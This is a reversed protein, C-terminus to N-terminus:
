IGLFQELKELEREARDLSQAGTDPDGQKLASEATDMHLELRKQSATIDGRMTLGARRQDREISDLSSNVAGVRAAMLMMRNNLEKLADQQAKEDAQASSEAPANVVPTPSTSAPAPMAPSTTAPELRTDRVAPLSAAPTKRASVSREAPASREPRSLTVPRSPSEQKEEPPPAQTQVSPAPAVPPEPEVETPHVEPPVAATPSETVVTAPVSEEGAAKARRWKPLQTLVAVLVAVTLLSGVAMYLGRHSRGAAPVPAATEVRLTDATDAPARPVAGPVGSAVAGLANRMAMASQFRKGPDKDIAMLILENLKAPLAPDIELPAAPKGELHAAMVSYQSDGQFPRLGTVIEYLSVGLSYIDTRADLNASGQIQEPSMYYLSGVTQGTQTLGHDAAAKAIGFDMLKVTGGPTLMMNAPKIDRHVVGQEHAYVLASLVQDVYHLGDCLPIRGAHLVEELTTGEVFEMVMLLQDDARQATRLAAINPHELRAHIRIERVFRDALEPNGALNPLLVKAAEIRNTFSNRVKYVEGMGGAGLVGVIEYDGVKEGPRLSM